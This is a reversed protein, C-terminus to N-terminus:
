SGSPCRKWTLVFHANPGVEMRNRAATSSGGVVRVALNVVLNRDSDCPAFDQSGVGFYDTVAWDGAAPGSIASRGSLRTPSGQFYYAADRWGRVGSDLRAFGTYDVEKVAYTYGPRGHISFPLVCNKRFDTPDAGAGATAAFAAFAVNFSTDSSVRVTATAAPCGSGNIGGVEVTLQDTPHSASGTPQAAFLTTVLAGITVFHPM